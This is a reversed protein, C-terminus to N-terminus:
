VKKVPLAAIFEQLRAGPISYVQPFRRFWTLQRKAYNRTHQKFAALALELSSEGRIFTGLEAYGLSSLSPLAPDYRSLLTKAEDLLGQEMQRDIRQEIRDYLEQRPWDITLYLTHFPGGAKASPRQEQQAAQNALELARIVYRLNHPHIRAAAAPDLRSLQEHVATVGESTALKEMEDRLRPDPRVASLSYNQTLASIYLGTGGVLLAIKGRAEIDAIAAMAERQFRALNYPEDPEVFDILHHRALATEEPTPKATGISMRRYIQRSDASVIEGDLFRALAIGLGTKGSATPGLVVVLPILGRERAETLHRQLLGALNGSDTITTSQM